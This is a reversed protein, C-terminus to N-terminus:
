LFAETTQRAVAESYAKRSHSLVLRFVHPRRRGEANVILAGRGFDVQVEEGPACELRRVPLETHVELRRAYRRVSYYSGTFHHEGVLDQYIRQATLGQELWNAILSRFPECDSPRGPGRRASGPPAIAPQSRPSTPESGSPAIAPKSDD